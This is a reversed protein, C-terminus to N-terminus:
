QVTRALRPPLACNSGFGGRLRTGAGHTQQGHSAGRMNLRAADNRRRASARAETAESQQLYRASLWLM